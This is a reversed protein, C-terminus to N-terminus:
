FITEAQAVAEISRVFAAKTDQLVSIAAPDLDFAVVRGGHKGAM